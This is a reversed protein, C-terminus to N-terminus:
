QKYEKQWKLSRIEAVLDEVFKRLSEGSNDKDILSALHAYLLSLNTKGKRTYKDQRDLSIDKLTPLPIKKNLFNRLFGLHSASLEQYLKQALDVAKADPQANSNKTELTSSKSLLVSKSLGRWPITQGNIEELLVSGQQIVIRPRKPRKLYVNYSRNTGIKILSVRDQIVKKRGEIEQVIWRSSQSQLPRYPIPAIVLHHQSNKQTHDNYIQLYPAFLSGKLTPTINCLIYQFRQGFCKELPKSFSIIGGFMTNAPIFEQVFLGKEELSSFKDNLSNRIRKGISIEVVKPQEGPAVYIHDPIAKRKVRTIAPHDHIPNKQPHSLFDIIQPGKNSHEIFSTMAAPYALYFQDKNVECPYLYPFNIKALETIDPWEHFIQYYTKIFWSRLQHATIYRLTPVYNYSDPEIPKNRFNTLNKLCYLLPKAEVEIDELTPSITKDELWQLKYDGKGMGRSRFSGMDPMLQVSKKLWNKLQQHQSQDSIYGLYVDAELELGDLYALEMFALNHEQVTHSTDDIAIRPKVQFRDRQWLAPNSLRLDTVFIHSVIEQPLSTGQLKLYWELGDRINGKLQTDPYIPLNDKDKLHPYYGFSGKEGGLTFWYGRAKVKLKGKSFYM